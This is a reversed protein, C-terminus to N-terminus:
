APDSLLFRAIIRQTVGFPVYRGLVSRLWANPGIPHRFSSRKAEVLKAVLVAVDAPDGASREVM